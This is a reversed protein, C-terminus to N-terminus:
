RHTIDLTSAFLQLAHLHKAPTDFGVQMTNFSIHTAGADQWGELLQEWSAPNGDDYRIRAEVGFSSKSRGAQELYGEVGNLTQQADEANRYNPIWGDGITAARQLVPEAHGGFWIPIPRQIPLPNIGADPITHWRGSFNVLPQTWLQRMLSVQEEIRHGRDHFNADLAIYEPKNWGIGVGLRLRGGCLVDLTAAQKAVLATQRQPLILIGTLFGLQNTVAAMYSFLLLPSQFPTQFDYPGDWDESRDPNVGLVHDYALVHTFGLGEATQALDRIAPPDNGFETQPYVFGINMQEM